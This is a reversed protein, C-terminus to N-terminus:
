WLDIDKARLLILHTNKPQIIELPVYVYLKASSSIDHGLRLELLLITKWDKTLCYGDLDRCDTSPYLIEIDRVQTDVKSRDFLLGPWRREANSICDGFLIHCHQTLTRWREKLNGVGQQYRPMTGSNSSHQFKGSQVKSSWEMSSNTLHASSVSCKM